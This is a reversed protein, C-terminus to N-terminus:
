MKRLSPFPKGGWDSGDMRLQPRGHPGTLGLVLNINRQDVEFRAYQGSGLAISFTHTEGNHIISARSQGASRLEVALPWVPVITVGIVVAWVIPGPQRSSRLM